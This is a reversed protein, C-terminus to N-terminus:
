SERSLGPVIFSGAFCGSEAVVRCSQFDHTGPELGPRAVEPSGQSNRREEQEAGDVVLASPGASLAQVSWKWVLVPDQPLDSPADISNNARCGQGAPARSGRPGAALKGCASRAGAARRAGRKTEVGLFRTGAM